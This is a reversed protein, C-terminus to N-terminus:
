RRHRMKDSRVCLGNKFPAIIINEVVFERMENMENTVITYLYFHHVSGCPFKM